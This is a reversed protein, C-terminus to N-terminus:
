SPSSISPCAIAAPCTSWCAGSRRSRHAGSMWQIPQSFTFAMGPIDALSDRMKEMLEERSRASTWQERPKLAGVFGTKDVGRAEIAVGTQGTRSVVTELEPFRKLREEVDGATEMAKELSVGPILQIDMDFAGEDMVPVFETGLRPVLIAAGALAVVAATVVVVRRRLAFALLPLSLRKALSFVLSEKHVTRLSFFCVTPIVFISLLLSSLLALAVTYALPAFM